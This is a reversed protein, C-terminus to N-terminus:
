RPRPARARRVARPGLPRALPGPLPLLQAQLTLGAGGRDRRGVRPARAQRGAGARRRLRSRRGQGPVVVRHRGHSVLPVERRLRRGRHAGRAPVGDPLGRRRRVARPRAGGPVRPSGAHRHRVTRLHRPRPGGLRARASRARRRHARGFRRPRGRDPRAFPPAGRQSGRGLRHGARAVGGRRRRRRGLAEAGRRHRRRGRVAGPPGGRHGPVRRACPRHRRAVGRLGLPRERRLDHGGRPALARRRSAGARRGRVVRAPARLWGTSRHGGM